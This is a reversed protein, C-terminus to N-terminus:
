PGVGLFKLIVPILAPNASTVAIIVIVSLWKWYRIMTKIEPLIPLVEDKLKKMEDEYNDSRKIHKEVDATNRDLTSEIKGISIKIDTIDDRIKDLKNEDM